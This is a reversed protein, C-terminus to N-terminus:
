VCDKIDKQNHSEETTGPIERKLLAAYRSLERAGGPWSKAVCGPDDLEVDWGDLEMMKLALAIRHDGATPVCIRGPTRTKSNQGNWRLEGKGVIELSYGFLLFGRRMAELRDSEKSPLTELGTLRFPRRLMLLTSCLPMALDPASRLDYEKGEQALLLPFRSDGQLSDATLLDPLEPAPPNWGRRRAVHFMGCIFAAASWDAEMRASNREEGDREGIEVIGEEMRVKWGRQRMVEATMAIYPRSVRWCGDRSVLRIPLPALPAALMLASVFQSSATADIHLEETKRETGFITYRRTQEDFVIEAGSRRLVDTLGAVPRRSLREGVTISVKRGPTWSALALLFRLPAGGEEIHISPNKEMRLTLLAQRLEEVDRCSREPDIEASIVGSSYDLALQRLLLSKSYPLLIKM